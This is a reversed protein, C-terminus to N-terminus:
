VNIIQASLHDRSAKSGFRVTHAIVDVEFYGGKSVVMNEEDVLIYLQMWFLHFAEFM